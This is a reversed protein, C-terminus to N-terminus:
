NDTEGTLEKQLKKSLMRLVLLYSQDIAEKVIDDPVTGELYLSNWHIKNMYYGPKIDAFQQRLFDGFQPELKMTFIPSGQKDEGQMAFMKGGVFYRVAEWQPQYDKTVGKKDLCYQDMWEYKMRVESGKKENVNIVAHIIIGDKKATQSM